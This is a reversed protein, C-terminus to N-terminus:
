PTFFAVLEVGCPAVVVLDVVRQEGNVDLWLETQPDALTEDCDDQVELWIHGVGGPMLRVSPEMETVRGGTASIDVDCERDGDNTLDVIQDPRGGGGDGAGVTVSVDDPDCPPPLDPPPVTDSTRQSPALEGAPVTQPGTTGTPLESSSCAGTLLVVALLVRGSV